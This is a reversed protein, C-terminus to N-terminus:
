SEPDHYIEIREAAARHRNRTSNQVAVFGIEQNKVIFLSSLHILYRFFASAPRDDTSVRRILFVRSVLPVGIPLLVSIPLVRVPILM